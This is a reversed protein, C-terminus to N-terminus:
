PRLGGEDDCECVLLVLLKLNATREDFMALDWRRSIVQFYRRLGGVSGVTQLVDLERPADECEFGFLMPEADDEGEHAPHLADVYRRVSIRM